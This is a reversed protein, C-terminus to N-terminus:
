SIFQNQLSRATEAFRFMVAMLKDISSILNKNAIRVATVSSPDAISGSLLISSGFETNPDVLLLNPREKLFQSFLILLLSLDKFVGESPLTETLDKLKHIDVGTIESSFSEVATSKELNKCEEELLILRIQVGRKKAKRLNFIIPEIFYDFVNSIILDSASDIKKKMLRIVHEQGKIISIEQLSEEKQSTLKIKSLNQASRKTAEEIPQILKEQLHIAIEAPDFLLEYINASGKIEDLAVLNKEILGELTSYIKSRPINSLEAIKPADASSGLKILSFLVKGENKTLGLTKLDDLLRKENVIM